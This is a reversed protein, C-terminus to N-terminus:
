ISTTGGDLLGGGAGQKRKAMFGLAHKKPKPKKTAVAPEAIGRRAVDSAAGLNCTDQWM